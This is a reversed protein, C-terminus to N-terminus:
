SCKKKCRGNNWYFNKKTKKKLSSAKRRQYFMMDERTYKEWENNQEGFKYIGLNSYIEREHESLFLSRFNIRYKKMELSSPKKFSNSRKKLKPLKNRQFTSLSRKKRKNLISALGIKELKRM